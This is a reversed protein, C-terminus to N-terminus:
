KGVLPMLPMLRPREPKAEAIESFDDLRPRFEDEREFFRDEIKRRNELIRSVYDLTTKPTGTSRVRGTGANYMALAAIESGGSDLCHRLHSMGYWANIEPNFFSQLELRPFTLSNLQFLGRDISENWNKTNVALPNLRSEEWGLAFALAPPINFRDAGALVASAIERSGCIERFFDVVKDHAEPQRYLELILGGYEPASMTFFHVFGMEQPQEEAVEVRMAQLEATDDYLFGSKIATLACLVLAGLCGFFLPIKFEIRRYYISFM